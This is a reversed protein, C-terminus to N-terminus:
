LIPSLNKFIHYTRILIEGGGIGELGEGKGWKGLDAGERENL